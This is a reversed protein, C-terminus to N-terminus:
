AEDFADTNWESTSCLKFECCPQAPWLQKPRVRVHAHTYTRKISQKTFAPAPSYTPPRLPPSSAADYDHCGGSVGAAAGALLPAGSIPAGSVAPPKHHKHFLKSHLQRDAAASGLLCALLAFAVASRMTAFTPPLSPLSHTPPRHARM